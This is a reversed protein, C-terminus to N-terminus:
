ARGWFALEVQQDLVGHLKRLLLRNGYRQFGDISFPDGTRASSYLRLVPTGPERPTRLVALDIDGSDTGGSAVLTAEQGDALIRGPGGIEEIVHACTILLMEGAQEGVAFGTGFCRNGPNQSSILVVAATM